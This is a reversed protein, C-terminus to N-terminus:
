GPPRQGLCYNHIVGTRIRVQLSSLRLLRAGTKKGSRASRGVRAAPSTDGIRTAAGPAASYAHDDLSSAARRGATAMM